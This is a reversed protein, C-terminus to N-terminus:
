GIGAERLARWVREPTFPTETLRIGVADHIANAISPIPGNIGIEGVSKAGMPGTPDHSEVLIVRIPPLDLTGPLKYRAMDPNRVRGRSDFVMEEMLAYGIGNAVAGEVQGEAMAPNIAQGCDVAAVYDLLRVRGTRVDVEVEAFSAMFPPPSESPVFSATAAIQQQDAGYLSRLNVEALTVSQGDPATVREDGLVLEDAPSGLMASAVELVQRKIDEAARVVATGSVYTTSSAYAGVDFPTLDTDSSLVLVKALPLGLVEAAMQALITDSGTGLDTAGVHLNISGDDNMKIAAAGMDVEPIGSGQMHISLGIGRRLDGDDKPRARKAEWGFLDAGAELCAPLECSSITMEVGKRGEGLEEFLPSTEGARIHNRRRLELPDM